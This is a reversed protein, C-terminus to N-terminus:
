AGPESPESESTDAPPDIVPTVSPDLSPDLASEAQHKAEWDCLLQELHEPDIPKTLHVDFGIERSRDVHDYSGLGTMALFFAGRLHPEPKLAALVEYGPIDPLSLDILLFNPQLEHALEIGDRGTHAIEVQRGNRALLTALSDATDPADEVILVRLAPLAADKGPSEEEDNESLAENLSSSPHNLEFQDSAPKDDEEAPKDIAHLRVEFEAGKGEGESSGTITGGHMKVLSRVLYLGLGLGSRGKELSIDGQWFPDYIKEWQASDIGVGDDWVTVVVTDDERRATLSAKGGHTGYKSANRLLNSFIQYFRAPDGNVWLEDELHVDLHQERSDFYPEVDEVCSELICRLSVPKRRLTLKGRGIRSVDLLDELLRDLHAIQREILHSAWVQEDPDATRRLLHFGNNLSSLPNRLEHGLLALFEDKRKDAIEMRTATHRLAEEMEVRKTIDVAAVTMGMMEGESSCLPEASVDWHRRKSKGNTTIEIRSGRMCECIQSRLRHMAQAAESGLTEELSRGVEAFVFGEPDPPDNRWLCVLDCDCAFVTMPSNVVAIRLLEQSRQRELEVRQQETLDAATVLLLKASSPEEATDPSLITVRWSWDRRSGSATRISWKGLETNQDTTLIQHLLDSATKGPHHPSPHVRDVFQRLSDFQKAEFGTAEEAARNFLVITGEEDLLLTPQPGERLAAWLLEAPPFRDRSDSSSSVM